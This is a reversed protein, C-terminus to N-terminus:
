NEENNTKKVKLEGYLGLINAMEDCALLDEFIQNADERVRESPLVPVSKQRLIPQPPQQPPQPQQPQQTAPKQEAPPPQHTIAPASANIDKKQSPNRVPPLPQQKDHKAPTVHTALLEDKDEHEAPEIPVRRPKPSPLEKKQLLHNAKKM